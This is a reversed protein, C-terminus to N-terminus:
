KRVIRYDLDLSSRGSRLFPGIRLFAEERTVEDPSMAIANPAITGFASVQKGGALELCSDQFLPRM